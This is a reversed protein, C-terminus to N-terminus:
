VPPIRPRLGAARSARASQGRASGPPERRERREGYSSRLTGFSRDSIAVLRRAARTREGASGLIPLRPALIPAATREQRHQETGRDGLAPEPSHGRESAGSAAAAGVAKLFWRPPPGCPGPWTVLPDGAICASGISTRSIAIMWRRREWEHDTGGIGACGSRRAGHRRGAPAPLCIVRPWPSSRM